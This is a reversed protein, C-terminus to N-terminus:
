RKAGPYFIENLDLGNCTHNKEIAALESEQKDKAITRFCESCISDWSGDPNQKHPFHSTRPTNM